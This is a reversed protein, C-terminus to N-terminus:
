RAVTDANILEAIEACCSQLQEFCRRYTAPPQGYPDAIEADADCGPLMGLLLTKDASAPHQEILRARHAHEMVLVLDAQEVMQGDVCRSQWGSMDLGAQAAVECMLPDAPRGQEAHFGASVVQVGSDARQQEFLRQAVASRNINGYCLFLVRRVKRLRGSGIWDQWARVQQRRARHQALLGAARQWQLRFIQKIDIWGPRWDRWQQVDFHHRPSFMLLLDKVIRGRGPFDVISANGERRLVLELWHLDASLKRAVIGNKLQPLPGCDGEVLLRYLLVPFDAGAAISLPLSGWFRGNVEMLAFSDDQEDHKFEVMAVGHWRMARVLKRAAELMGPHLPESERLSSGGGTLPVEHLRRHQFALVVEGHTAILEIGVGQGKIHQQVQVAGFLLYHRVRAQLEDRSDAYAVSLQQRRRGNDGISRAPKIVVPYGFDDPVKELDSEDELLVSGPVPITLQEALALTRQKDLALQLSDRDPLAIHRHLEADDLLPLLASATRETVPIVLRYRGSDIHARIWDAFAAPERLPDPYHLHARAYRSHSAIAQPESSAVDVQLGYRGLSRTVALAPTMDADLVLVAHPPPQEPM